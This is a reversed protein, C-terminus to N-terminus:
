VKSKASDIIPKAMIMLAKKLIKTKLPETLGSFVKQVAQAGNLEINM